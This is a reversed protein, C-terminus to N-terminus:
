ASRRRPESSPFRTPAEALSGPLHETTESAADARPRNGDDCPLSKAARVAALLDRKRGGVARYVENASATPHQGLYSAVEGALERRSSSTRLAVAERLFEHDRDHRPRRTESLVRALTALSNM